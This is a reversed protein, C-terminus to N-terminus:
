GDNPPQDDVPPAIWHQPTPGADDRVWTTSFTITGSATQGEDNEMTLDVTVEFPNPPQPSLASLEASTM